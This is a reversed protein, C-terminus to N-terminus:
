HRITVPASQNNNEDSEAVAGGVDAVVYLQATDTILFFVAPLQVSATLPIAQGANIATTTLAPPVTTLVVDSNPVGPIVFHIEHRALTNVAVPGMNRIRFTVLPRTDPSPITSPFVSVIEAVLDPLGSGKCKGASRANFIAAIETPSLVRSFAEVEDICGLFLGSVSSSRSGVRFPATSSVSGNHPRTDFSLGVQVGDLYFKGGAADNRHVTVAVHHWQGDNPVAAQSAYNTFGAGDALQFGLTGNTELFFSYGQVIQAEVRKDIIVRIASDDTTRKVWADLSFDGTGFNIGAYSPVEVYQNMGNFCLGRAVYENVVTPSGVHTGNNGGALNTATPGIAEDFPLWLAMNPPPQVCQLATATAMVTVTGCDVPGSMSTTIFSLTGSLPGPSTPTVRVTVTVSGGPPVSAPLAPGVITFAPHSSNIATITFPSIGTNRAMFTQTASQGVIVTGFDITRPSVDCTVAPSCTGSVSVTGLNVPGCLSSTMFSLTGSQPGAATCTFRITVTVSGGAPVTAPLSPSVVTFAANTSNISTITFAGNGTNTVTFTRDANQGVTVNGFNLTTPSVSGTVQV